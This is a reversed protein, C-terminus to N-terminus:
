EDGMYADVLNFGLDISNFGSNDIPMAKTKFFEKITKIDHDLIFLLCTNIEEVDRSKEERVIGVCDTGLVISNHKFIDKNLNTNKLIIINNDNRIASLPIFDFTQESYSENHHVSSLNEIKDFNYDIHKPSVTLLTYPENSFKIFPKYDYIMNKYVYPDTRAFNKISRDEQTESYTRISERKLSENYTKEWFEKSKSKNHEEVYKNAYLKLSDENKHITYVYCKGTPYTCGNLVLVQSKDLKDWVCTMMHEYIHLANYCYGMENFKKSLGVYLGYNLMLPDVYELHRFNLKPYFKETITPEPVDPFNLTINTSVLEAGESLVYRIEILNFPDINYKKLIRSIALECNREFKMHEITNKITKVRSDIVDVMNGEDNHYQVTIPLIIIEDNENYKIRNPHYCVDTSACINHAIINMLKMISIRCLENYSSVDSIIELNEFTIINIQNIKNTKKKGSM